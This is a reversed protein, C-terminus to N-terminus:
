SEDGILSNAFEVLEALNANASRVTEKRPFQKLKLNLGADKAQKKIQARRSIVSQETLGLKSAVEAISNSNQYVELFSKLPTRVRKEAVAEVVAESM